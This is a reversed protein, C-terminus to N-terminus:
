LLGGRKLANIYNIVCIHATEDWGRRELFAHCEALKHSTPTGLLSLRLHQWDSDKIAAEIEKWRLERMRFRDKYEFSSVM